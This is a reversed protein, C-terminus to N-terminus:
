ESTPLLFIAKRASKAAIPLKELLKSGIKPNGFVITFAPYSYVGLTNMDNQHDVIAYLKNGREEIFRCIKKAVMEPEEKVTTTILFDFKQQTNM